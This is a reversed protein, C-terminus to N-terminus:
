TSGKMFGTIEKGSHGFQRSVITEKFIAELGYTDELDPTLITALDEGEGMKINQKERDRLTYLYNNNNGLPFSTFGMQWDAHKLTTNFIDGFRAARQRSITYRGPDNEPTLRGQRQLLGREGTTSASNDIVLLIDVKQKKYTNKLTVEFSAKSKAEKDQGLPIQGEQESPLTVKSPSSSLNGDKCNTFLVCCLSFSIVKFYFSGKYRKEMIIFHAIKLGFNFANFLLM